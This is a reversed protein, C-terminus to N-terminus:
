VHARGIQPPANCSKADLGKRDAGRTDAPNMKPAPIKAASWRSIKRGQGDDRHHRHEGDERDHEGPGPRHVSAPVPLRNIQVIGKGETM